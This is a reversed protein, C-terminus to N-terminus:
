SEIQMFVSLMFAAAKVSFPPHASLMADDDVQVARPVEDGVQVRFLVGPVASQLFRVGVPPVPQFDRDGANPLGIARPVFDEFAHAPEGAYEVDRRKADTV